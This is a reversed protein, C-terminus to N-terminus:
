LSNGQLSSLLDCLKTLLHRSQKRFSTHMYGPKWDAHSLEDSVLMVAALSVQRYAAVTCLAAYEMDVAMIGQKGYTAVKERTERFLGDTTWLRGQKIGYGQTSLWGTVINQFVPSEPLPAVTPYHASTGEESLIGDPVFLEGISLEPRLSGCWGYLLVRTAGMAILQELCIVAMPAGVAPGALFLRDNSFLEANFLFHRQLGHHKAVIPFCSKDSPNVALIGHVPLSPDSPRRQPTIVCSAM